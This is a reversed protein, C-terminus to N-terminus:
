YQSSDFEFGLEESADFEYADHDEDENNGYDEYGEDDEPEEDDYDSGSSHISHCQAGQSHVAEDSAYEDEDSGEYDLEYEVDVNEDTAEDTGVEGYM